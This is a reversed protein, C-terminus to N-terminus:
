ELKKLEDSIRDTALKVYGAEKVFQQGETLIWEIFKVAAPNKPKGQSVLYLERAPPSPYIENKIAQSISELRDYFNEDGDIIGNSDLDLPLVELDKYKLRTNIDYVYIVNNYGIGYIDSKVADAVGPDGFVGLGLLDEQNVGLYKGWMAAAGCADSRTYVNIKHEGPIDLIDEWNKVKGDIYLRKLQNLTIGQKKLDNIFPNAANITPLVADKTVAIYWAGKAIEQESVERSFMGLDVMESLADAMGKGAGGASIDIKVDPYLKRFEESWRVTMPYLAFAGSISITGQLNDSTVSKKGSNNCSYIITICIICLLFKATKM